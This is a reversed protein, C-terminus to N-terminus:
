NTPPIQIQNGLSYAIAQFRSDIDLKDYLHRIHYRVTREKIGLSAAIQLNSHGRGVLSLVEQERTTFKVHHYSPKVCQIIASASALKEIARKSFWYSNCLLASIAYTIAPSEDILLYGDIGATLIQYCMDPSDPVNAILLIRIDPFRQSIDKVFQVLTDNCSQVSIILLDPKLAEIKTITDDSSESEWLITLKQDSHSEMLYSRIGARSLPNIDMIALTVDPM